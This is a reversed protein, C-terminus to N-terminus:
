DSIFIQHITCLSVKDWFKQPKYLKWIFIILDPDTEKLGCIRFIDTHSWFTVKESFTSFKIWFQSCVNLLMQKCGKRFLKWIFLSNKSDPLFILQYKCFRQKALFFYAIPFFGGNQFIWFFFKMSRLNLFQVSMCVLKRRLFWWAVEENFLRWTVSSSIATNKHIQNEHATM